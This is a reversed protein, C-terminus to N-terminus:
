VREIAGIFGNVYLGMGYVRDDENIEEINSSGCRSCTILNDDQDTITMNNM